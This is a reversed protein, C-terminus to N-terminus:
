ILACLLAVHVRLNRGDLVGDDARVETGSVSGGLGAVSEEGTIEVGRGGSTGRRERVGRFRGLYDERGRVPAGKEADIAAGDGSTEGGNQPALVALM